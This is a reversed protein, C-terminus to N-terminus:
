TFDITLCVSCMIVLKWFNCPNLKGKIKWEWKTVWCNFKRFWSILGLIIFLKVIIAAYKIYNNYNKPLYIYKAIFLHHQVNFSITKIKSNSNYNISCIKKYILKTMYNKNKNWSYDIKCKLFLTEKKLM